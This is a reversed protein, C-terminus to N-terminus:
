CVKKALQLFPEEGFIEGVALVLIGLSSEWDIIRLDKLSVSRMVGVMNTKNWMNLYRETNVITM